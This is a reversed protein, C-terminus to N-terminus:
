IGRMSFDRLAPGINKFFHLEDIVVVDVDEVDIDILSSTIQDALISTGDHSVIHRSSYRGDIVAKVYTVRLGSDALRAAERLM